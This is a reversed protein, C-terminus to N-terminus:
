DVKYMEFSKIQPTDVFKTATVRLSSVEADEFTAIFKHGICSGKCLVEWGDDTKGEVVFERVREGQAIDEMLVLQNVEQKKSLRLEIKKGKGSTKAVPKSFRRRIEDGFEKLRLVDAEPVLGRSDPTVGLILTSNHGVSRYYRDTLVELPLIAEDGTSEEWFWDHHGNYGKLPCDSYAPMYYKGDPDGTKLLAFENEMIEKKMSEGAGTAFYPFTGWCPYPVTGSESGGWRLDARQLNDVFLCNPQYKEFLPLVDPGGQEPGHAGADFWVIALDGYQTLIEEVMGEIMKNFYKQRNEGFEGEGNVKFDWVGFFSNWRTCVSIGPLIDYKRCSNVFDRLIDGKGDRWDVAKLGYPNVKSQYLAFGTEANANTMAIKFGADKVAKVWQDTDLEKPDFRNHDQVPTIKIKWFDYPEDDFLHLEYAIGAVLEANQWTIQGKTPVPLQDQAIINLGTLNLFFYLTGTVITRM